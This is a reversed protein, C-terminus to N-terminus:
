FENHQGQLPVLFSREFTCIVQSNQNTGSTKVTIIGQNIKSKSLRKNLIETSAYITDGHFVPLLHSLEKVGLSAIAKGSIDVVSMGTLLAYIYTGVVINEGQPMETKAFHSDIHLPSSAMTLMCYLHDESETITKGPWHRYIDGVEFEDYFHGYRDARADFERTM